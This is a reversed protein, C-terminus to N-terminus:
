QLTFGEIRIITDLEGRLYAGHMNAPIHACLRLLKDAADMRAHIPTHPDHMVAALFQLATLGPADYAHRPEHVTSETAPSAENELPAM